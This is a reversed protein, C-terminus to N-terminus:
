MMTAILTLISFLIPIQMSTYGVFWYDWKEEHQLVIATTTTPQPLAPLNLPSFNHISTPIGLFSKPM